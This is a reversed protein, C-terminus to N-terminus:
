LTISPLPSVPSAALASPTVHLMSLGVTADTSESPLTVAFDAPSAVTVAFYPLESSVTLIITLPDPLRAKSAVSYLMLFFPVAVILAVAVELPEVTLFGFIVHVLSSSLIAVTSLPLIVPTLSPVVVTLADHAASLPM